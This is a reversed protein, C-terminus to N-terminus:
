PVTAIDVHQRFEPVFLVYAYDDSPLPLSETSSTDGEEVRLRQVKLDGGAAGQLVVVCDVPQLATAGAPLTVTIDTGDLSVPTAVNLETQPEPLGEILQFHRATLLVDERRAVNEVSLLSDDVTMLHAGNHPDRLVIGDGVFDAIGPEPGAVQTRTAAALVHGTETFVILDMDEDM